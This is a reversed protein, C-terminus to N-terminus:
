KNLRRTKIDYNKLNEYLDFFPQNDINYRSYRSSVIVTNKTNELKNENIIVDYDYPNKKIILRSGNNFDCEDSHYDVIGDHFLEYNNLKDEENKQVTTYLRDILLYLNEDGLNVNFSATKETSFISILLDRNFTLLFSLIKNNKMIQISEGVDLKSKTVDTM